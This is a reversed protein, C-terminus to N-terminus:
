NNKIHYNQYIIEVFIIFLVFHITKKHGTYM